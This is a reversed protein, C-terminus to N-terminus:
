DLFIIDLDKKSKSQKEMFKTLEIAKDLRSMANLKNIKEQTTEGIKFDFIVRYNEPEDKDYYQRGRASLIADDHYMALKFNEGFELGSFKDKGIIKFENNKYELDWFKSNKLENQGQIFIKKVKDPQFDITQIAQPALRFAKFNIHSDKNNNISGVKM